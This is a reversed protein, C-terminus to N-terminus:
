TRGHELTALVLAHGKRGDELPIEVADVSEYVKRIPDLYTTPGLVHNKVPCVECPEDINMLCKHCKEGLKMSPYLEGIVKNFAVVNYEEDIVYCGSASRREEEEEDSELADNAHDRLYKEFEEEPMPKSFYYGQVMDCELSRLLELQEKTEVGEAVIAFGLTKALNVAAALM